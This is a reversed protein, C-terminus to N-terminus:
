CLLMCVFSTRGNDHVSTCQSERGLTLECFPDQKGFTQTDQLDRASVARVTLEM